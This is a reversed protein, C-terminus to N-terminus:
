ALKELISIITKQEDYYKKVHASGHNERICAQLHSDLFLMAKRITFAQSDDFVTPKM